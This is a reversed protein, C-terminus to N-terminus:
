TCPLRGVYVEPYMDLVDKATTTWEAFIGNNNSDWSSFNGNADYLDAFYLDTLYSGEGEDNLLSYRVPIWWKEQMIGGNRGGVLLIYKTGWQDFANKIFYKMEEACDRGEAPFFVSNCIDDRTVLKTTMGKSIKHTVLPQLAESFAEPAIIVLEYQDSTTTSQTEPLLYTITIKANKAYSLLNDSPLYQVPYLHVACFTVLNDGNRGAAIHYSYSQEPCISFSTSQLSVLTSVETNDTIAQPTLKLPKSITKEQVESFCVVVNTIKTKFPFTYVRTVVPLMYSGPTTLYSTAESLDISTYENEELLKFSSFSLTDTKEVIRPDTFSSAVAGCGSTILVAVIVIALSKKM